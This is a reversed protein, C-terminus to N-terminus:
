ARKSNANPLLTYGDGFKSRGAMVRQTSKLVRSCMAWGGCYFTVFVLMFGGLLLLMNAFRLSKEEEENIYMPEGEEYIEAEEELEEFKGELDNLKQELSEEREEDEDQGENYRSEDEERYDGGDMRHRDTEYAYAGQAADLSDNGEYSEYSDEDVNDQEYSEAPLQEADEYNEEREHAAEDNGGFYYSNKAEENEVPVATAEPPRYDSEEGYVEKDDNEYSDDNNADAESYETREEEEEESDLENMPEENSEYKYQEEDDDSTGYSDDNYYGTPVDDTTTRTAVTTVDNDYSDDYSEDSEADVLSESSPLAVATSNEENFDDTRQTMEETRDWAVTAEESLTGEEVPATQTDAVPAVSTGEVAAAEGVIEVPAVDEQGDMSEEVEAMMTSAVVPVETPEQEPSAMNEDESAQPADETVSVMTMTAGEATPSGTSNLNADDDPIVQGDDDITAVHSDEDWEVADEDQEDRPGYLEEQERDQQDESITYAEDRDSADTGNSALTTNGTDVDEYYTDRGEEYSDELAPDDIVGDEATLDTYPDEGAPNDYNNTKYANEEEYDDSKEGAADKYEFTDVDNKPTQDWRDESYDDTKQPNGYHDLNEYPDTDPKDQYEREYDAAPMQDMDEDSGPVPLSHVRVSVLTLALCVM